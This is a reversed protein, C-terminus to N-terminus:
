ALVQSLLYELSLVRGDCSRHLDIFINERTRQLRQSMAMAETSTLEICQPDNEGSLNLWSVALSGHAELVEWPGIISRFVPMYYFFFFWYISFPNAIQEDRLTSRKQSYIGLYSSLRKNLTEPIREDCGWYGAPFHSWSHYFPSFGKSRYRYYVM